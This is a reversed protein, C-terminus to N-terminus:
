PTHTPSGSSIANGPSRFAVTSTTPTMSGVGTSAPTLTGSSRSVSRPMLRVSVESLMLTASPASGACTCSCSSFTM